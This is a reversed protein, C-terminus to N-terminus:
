HDSVYAPGRPIFNVALRFITIRGDPHVV